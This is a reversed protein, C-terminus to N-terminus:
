TFPEGQVGTDRVQDLGLQCSPKGKCRRGEKEQFHHCSILLCLTARTSQLLDQASSDQLLHWAPRHSSVVAAASCHAAFLCALLGIYFVRASASASCCSCCAALLNALLCIYSRSHDPLCINTDSPCFLHLILFWLLTLALGPTINPSCLLYWFLLCLWTVFWFWFHPILYLYPWSLSPLVSDSWLHYFSIVVWCDEPRQLWNLYALSRCTNMRAWPCARLNPSM